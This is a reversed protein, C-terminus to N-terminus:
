FRESTINKWYEADETVDGTLSKLLEM